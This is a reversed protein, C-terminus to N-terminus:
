GDGCTFGIRITWGAHSSSFPRPVASPRTAVTRDPVQSVECVRLRLSSDSSGM